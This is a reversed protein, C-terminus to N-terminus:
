ASRATASTSSISRGFCEFSITAMSWQDGIRTFAGKQLPKNGVQAFADSGKILQPGEAKDDM